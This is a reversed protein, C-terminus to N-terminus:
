QNDYNATGAKYDTTTESTEVSIITPGSAVPSMEEVEKANARADKIEKISTLELKGSKNQFQIMLKRSTNAITRGQSTAVFNGDLIVTNDNIDAAASKATFYTSVNNRKMYRQTMNLEKELADHYQPSTMGLLLQHSFAVTQPTGSLLLHAAYPAMQELYEKSFAINSVSLTRDIQPPVLITQTVQKKSIYALSLMANTFISAILLWWIVKRTSTRIAIESILDENKM